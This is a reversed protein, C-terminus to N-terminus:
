GTRSPAARCARRGVGTDRSGRDPGPLQPDPAVLGTPANRELRPRGTRRGADEPGTGCPSRLRPPRLRGPVRDVEPGLAAVAAVVPPSDHHLANRDNRREGQTLTEASPPDPR